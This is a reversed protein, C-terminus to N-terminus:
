SIDVRRHDVTSHEEAKQYEAITENYANIKQELMERIKTATVQLSDADGAARKNFNDAVNRTFTDQATLEGAHMRASRRVLDALTDHAHTLDNVASRLGDIDVGFQGAMDEDGETAAPEGYTKLPM